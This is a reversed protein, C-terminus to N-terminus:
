LPQKSPVGTKRPYKTPTPRLKWAVVFIHGSGPVGNPVVDDLEAGLLSFAHEAGDIEDDSAATKYASFSGGVSVFPLCYEALTPLMAVARSVVLDFSERYKPDHALDEARAQLVRVNELGLQQAVDAVVKLKKGVSDVLLFEKEPFALALPLGPFGGGTGLDLVTEAEDFAPVGIISLSDILNKQIFDEPDRIATVNIKENWALCLEMLKLLQPELEPELERSALFEGLTM